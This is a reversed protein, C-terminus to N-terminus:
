VNAADWFRPQLRFLHSRDLSTFVYRELQQTYKNSDMIVVTCDTKLELTGSSM